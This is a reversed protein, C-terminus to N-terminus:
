VGAQDHDPAAGGVRVGVAFHGFQRPHQLLAHPEATSVDTIRARRLRQHNVTQAGRRPHAKGPQHHQRKEQEVAHQDLADSSGGIRQLLTLRRQFHQCGAMETRMRMHSVHHQRARPFGDLPAGRHITRQALVPYLNDTVLLLNALRLARVVQLHTAQKFFLPCRRWNLNFKGGVLRMRNFGLAKADDSGSAVPRTEGCRVQCHQLPQHVGAAIEIRDIINIQRRPRDLGADACQQAALAHHGVDGHYLGAQLACQEFLETDFGPAAHVVALRVQHRLRM